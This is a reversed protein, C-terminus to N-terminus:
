GIRGPPSPVLSPQRTGGGIGNALTMYDSLSLGRVFSFRGTLKGGLANM